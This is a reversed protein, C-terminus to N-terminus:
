VTGGRTVVHRLLGGICLLGTVCALAITVYTLASLQPILLGAVTCVLCLAVGVAIPFLNKM